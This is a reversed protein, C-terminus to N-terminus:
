ELHSRRPRPEAPSTYSVGEQACGSCANGYEGLVGGQDDYGVVPRHEMTCAEPKEEPCVQTDGPLGLPVTPESACGTLLLALGAFVPLIIKM